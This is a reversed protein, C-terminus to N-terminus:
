LIAAVVALNLSMPFVLTKKLLLVYLKEGKIKAQKCEKIKSKLKVCSRQLTTFLLSM